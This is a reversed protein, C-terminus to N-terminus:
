VPPLETSDDVGFTVGAAAVAKKQVVKQAEAAPTGLAVPAQAPAAPPRPWGVKVTKHAGGAKDVFRVFGKEAGFRWLEATLWVDQRCYHVLEKWRGQRFHEVAELGNGGKKANLTAICCSELSVRHGLRATLDAMIDFCRSAHGMEPGAGFPELVKFDFGIINFGVVLRAARLYEVLAKGRMEGWEQYLGTEVDLTVAVSLGLAHIKQGTIEAFTRQTEIDFVVAPATM